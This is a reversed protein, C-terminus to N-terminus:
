DDLGNRNGSFCVVNPIGWQAALEISATLEKEIHDHNERLNLGNTLSSHGRISVIGLGHDRVLAFDKQEVLEMAAYGIDACARVLAEPSLKGDFCWWSVSQKLRTM